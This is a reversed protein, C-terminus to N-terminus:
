GRRKLLQGGAALTLTVAAVWGVAGLAILPVPVPKKQAAQPQTPTIPQPTPAPPAGMYERWRHDLEDMDFGYVRKLASDYGSGEKFVGLLEVIKGRGSSEVLYKVVSFSEAYFLNVQGPDGAPSSLSRVSILNNGRIGRDLAAQYSPPLEGEAYMALGEDLWAPIGSYSGEIAQHVVQHTLEHAITTAVDEQGLLVLLVQPSLRIGLTVTEQSYTESRQPLAPEMDAKSQYLFIKQPHKYTIGIQSSVRELGQTAVQLLAQAPATGYWYLTVGGQTLRQWPFRTDTYTLATAPSELRNGARDEIIWHYSLGTDPALYILNPNLRYEAAVQSAPQFSLRALATTDADEIQYSLTINEIPSTSQASIRFVLGQPFRNEHTSSLIVIPTQALTHPTSRPLLFALAGILLALLSARTRKM